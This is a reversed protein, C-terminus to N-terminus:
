GCHCCRGCPRNYRAGVVGYPGDQEQLAYLLRCYEDFIDLIGWVVVHRVVGIHFRASGLTSGFRDPGHDRVLHAMSNALM